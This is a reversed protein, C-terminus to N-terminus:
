SENYKRARGGVELERKSSSTIITTHSDLSGEVAAEQEDRELVKVKVRNIYYEKGLAGSREELTYVYYSEYLSLGTGDDASEWLAEVPIKCDYQQTVKEFNLEVVEESRLMNTDDTITVTIETTENDIQKKSTIKGKVARNSMSLISADVSGGTEFWVARDSPVSVTAEFGESNDAVVIAPEIQQATTGAEISVSQVFGDVPAVIQAANELQEEQYAIKRELSAIQRNLSKSSGM